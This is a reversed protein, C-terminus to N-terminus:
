RWSRVPSPDLRGTGPARHGPWKCSARPRWWWCGSAPSLRVTATKLAAIFNSEGDIRIKERSHLVALIKGLDQMTSVLPCLVSVRRHARARTHM